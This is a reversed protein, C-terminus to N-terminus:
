ASCTPSSPASPPPGNPSPSCRRPAPWSPGCSRPGRPAGAPAGNTVTVTVTVEAAVAALAVILATPLLPGGSSAVTASIGAAAVVAAATSAWWLVRSRRGLVAWTATATVGEVLLMAPWDVALHVAVAAVDVPVLFAGLHFLVDATAPLTPRLRQGALLCAGTLAGLIALKLADALEDWRVAVFVGAAAFLLFAGLATVWTAGTRRGTAPPPRTPTRPRLVTATHMGRAHAWRHDGGM